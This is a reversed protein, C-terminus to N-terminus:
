YDLACLLAVGRKIWHKEPKESRLNISLVYNTSHGTTSLTGARKSTRYVPASYSYIDANKAAALQQNKKIEVPKLWIVPMTAYLQRKYSEALVAGQSDWRAGQIFLGYIYVGDAPPQINHVSAENPNINPLVEFEFAIEDIAIQYNRAYNQLTGTLFSQTFFFGSLWYVTPSGYNLWETFMRLRKKLDNVWAGLPKTSPYSVASWINPVVNDYMNYSMAELEASMVVEGKIAKQLESLSTRIVTLLRNFRVLEQILVTNMSETYNVPYKKAAALLDFNAPLEKEIESALNAIQENMGSSVQGGARPQLALLTELMSNAEKIATTIAANNHLGFIQASDTAPLDRIYARYDSLDAGAAPPHYVGSEDFKYQDTLINPSMYDELMANILRRDLADTVKGGYNLEGILYKLAEFPIDSNQYYDIFQKLQIKSILLDSETFDYQKNWGVAGFRKRENVIAHFFSLGFFLKKFEQPKASSELYSSEVARYTQNLNAKLGKPPENTIKVGNQLISVPFHPTPMSTLWLRFDSNTTVPNIEEVIKQLTPMWSVQLHCNQLLVWTGKDIADRISSEALPGQGQGLSISVLKDATNFGKDAALKHVDRVPDVGPSLVFILPSTPDSDKFAAELDYAPPNIFDRGLVSAILRQMAVALKDLRLCRLVLLKQFLTLKENWVGPLNRAFPESSEYYARWRNQNTEIHKSLGHFAKLESLNVIQEWQLDTLWHSTALSDLNEGDEGENSDDKKKEEEEEEENLDLDPPPNMVTPNKVALEEKISASGGTLLFRLEASDLQNKGQLVRGALMFSFLLKDKEFLSRCVNNYLSKIFQKDINATRQHVDLSKDADRIARLFLSIFWQLSYQYMPDINCLDQVCFFLNSTSKATSLYSQRTQNITEEMKAQASVRKEILKAASKSKQLTQILDEDDLIMGKSENLKELIKDEIIQLQRQNEASKVILEGRELELEPEESSVVINLMQDELGESTIMFNILTVKTSTEPPYHPNSLKTTIYLRFDESYNLVENGLRIMTRAGSKFTQKLLLPELVPDITEGVNEILVPLGVQVATSLIRIFQDDTQRLVKLATKEDELKRIFKNAQEQPDIILGWRLAKTLIIANDISFSDKPLSQIGWQRIQVPDGLVKHLAFDKDCPIRKLQLLKVWERICQERFSSTFVGLYAIVGSSVLINGVVNVFDAKLQVERDAWRSKENSLGGLLQEARTLRATCEAVQSELSQKKQNCLEFQENLDDLLKQVEALQQKKASLQNSAELLSKEAVKLAERKPQVASNVRDYVEMALIWKCFGEAAKSAQAVRSPAFDPNKCYPRVKSIIEKPINDKDYNLLRQFLKSDNLLKVKAAAFYDDVKSGVTGVKKPPVGMMICLAELTLVVGQTPVKMTRLEDLASKSLVKLANQAQKLAPMAEELVSNCEDAIKKAVEAQQNCEKEEAAVVKRTQAVQQSRDAITQILEATEKSSQILQPRLAELQIQMAKVNEETDALKSLGTSYRHQASRINERNTEFLKRFLKILELYSTPTVYNYRRLSHLYDKSLQIVREQMDVCVDIVGQKIAPELNIENLFRTAVQKLADTPWPHFWDITTCNVLSPFQRLRSRFLSGVPSLCLVIHLNARCRDVFYSFVSANSDAKGHKRAEPLVAEVIPLYDEPPFLNPVEGSNLLSSLDEMFAENKIQSDSILFVIPKAYVGAARVVERLDDRWENLSYQKTIEIQFVEYDAIFAALKTLSQRGSGGVGVLLANGFPQRLIRSIRAIHSIADDFLVLNMQQKEVTNYDNLYGEVVSTLASNDKIEAYKKIVAKSNGFDCFLLQDQPITASEFVAEIPQEFTASIQKELLQNFWKQDAEDILRDSFVRTTEHAWLRILDAPEKIFEADVSMIGQFVKSVDRLNFTYHSKAPTPLLDKIITSYASVTANVLPASLTRIKASFPEIWWRVITNFIRKLSTEDLSNFCIANFHRLYRNTVPNRGGGMPAMATVFQVDVISRFSNTKRDYWGNYDMWQRLLEIPPQAGYTDRAPLNLDDIFVVCRKNPPPGLVGARRRELKNDIIDQTQNASTRASFAFMLPLYVNRDLGSLLKSQAAVTKGTGTPGTLLVHHHNTILLDMIYNTRITDLTPVIIEHFQAKEPIKFTEGINLWNQWTHLKRSYCYEFVSASEERIEAEPYSLQVRRHSHEKPLVLNLDNARGNVLDRFFESFKNRSTSDANSGISWVLAFLFMSELWQQRYEIEDASDLDLLSASYSVPASALDVKAEKNEEAAVASPNMTATIQQQHSQLRLLAFKLEQLLTDLLKCLSSILTIESQPLLQTCNKQTFELSPPILWHFLNKLETLHPALIPHLQNLYSEVIPQWGLQSPEMYIMGCRSVTAPSAQSLDEVEFIMNMNNILKIQEGSALCLKRNDDLVTNMNEIWVADVPGDFVVWQWHNSAPNSVAERMVVSLIGDRWEKNTEDEKGYLQDLTISKPNIFYTNVTNFNQQGALTTIAAALTKLCTSKASFTQGVLMLGHRVLITDYLEICKNVFNPVAQLNTAAIRSHLASVLLERENARMEVSPFLDKVIGNFLPIDASVFRPLNCDCIARVILWDESESPNATKLHGAATLCSKVNRMGYDYHFQSSLQESALRLCTVLKRALDRARSYGYSYLVIEAIMAYDPVMMAVSRFLAKLNDPLEARGAYGPNMTIFISCTSILPINVDEFFFTHKGEIIARQIHSVQQAIVSLVELEIRNFEDFCSWAGSAALGKLFKAMSRYNIADSCNFVLCQIAVAKSLDKVTETKGTGAPGEPAGGLHLNVASMLTRYCRDTLPTIVLRTTNGLYEYGYNMSTNIMKVRLQGYPQPSLGAPKMNPNSNSALDVNQEQTWYYRMQALWDFEMESSVEQEVLKAVVDRAHVDVVTLAGLTLRQLPSLEGRVLDVLKDLQKNLVALYDILATRNSGNAKAQLADSVQKTWYFQSIALVIQGPQKLIWQERTLNEYDVLAKTSYYRLSERMSKEVEKLWIEVNGRKTGENPDVYDIFPITEGEISKMATIISNSTFNLEHIADFCKSLHPQVATANKTQSLISLLEDNSLFYFRPFALRKTELYENLHKGILDLMKNSEQFTKLLNETESVFDLINGIKKAQEMTKRWHLDVVGFRRGEIPMQRLIDESSFIPEFYLWTKQCNLWEEMISSILQLRSEWKKTRNEFFKIYPSGRMAQTKMIQDDLLTLIEEAGKLIYTKTSKYAELEFNVTKWEKVMKDLQLELQFEKSASSCIEEIAAKHGAVDLALIQSLTLDSDPTLFQKGPCLLASLKEWHRPRLGPNRLWTIVPINAKFDQIKMKMETAVRAPKIYDEALLEKELKYMLKHWSNVDKSISAAELDNFPGNMWVSYSGNFQSTTAWLEYFPRFKKRLENLEVYESPLDGFLLDRSNFSAVQQEAKELKEQLAEVKSAYQEMEAASGLGFSAFSAVEKNFLELDTAFSSQEVLLQQQFRGTDLEIQCKCEELAEFLYQPYRTVTWSLNFDARSISFRFQMLVRLKAQMEAIDQKLRAIEVAEVQRAYQKLAALENVNQPKMRINALHENYLATLYENETRVWSALGELLSHAIEKARNSLQEKLLQCEIKILQFTVESPSTANIADIANIYRQIEGETDALSHVSRPKVLAPKKKELEGSKAENNTASIAPKDLGPNGWPSSNISSNTGVTAANNEQGHAPENSSEGAPQFWAQVHKQVDIGLLEGFKQYLTALAIPQKINERIISKLEKQAATAQEFLVPASKDTCLPIDGMALLPVVDNDIQAVNQLKSPINILNLLTVKISDLAPLFVVERGQCSMKFVFLPRIGLSKHPAFSLSPGSLHGELMARADSETYPSKNENASLTPRIKSHQPFKDYFAKLPNNYRRMFNIYETISDSTLSTLQNRLIYTVMKLFRRLESNHFEEVNNVFLKYVSNLNDRILNIILARWENQIKERVNEFHNECFDVYDYLPVASSPANNVPLFRNSKVSDWAKFLTLLVQTAEPHHTFHSSEVSKMARQMALKHPPTEIVALYPIEKIEPLPPLNLSAMRAAEVADKRKFDIIAQKMARAYEDRVEILLKEVTKQRNMVLSEASLMLRGIIGHLSSQQIPTFLSDSQSNVFAQYRRWSLAEERLKRCEELRANFKNKDEDDFLISLRGVQKLLSPQDFQISYLNVDESYDIVRCEKWIWERNFYFLSKAPLGHSGYQRRGYYLWEPGSRDGEGSDFLELPLKELESRYIKYLEEPNPPPISYGSDANTNNSSSAVISQATLKLSKTKAAANNISQTLSPTFDIAEEKFEKNEQSDAPEAAQESQQTNNNSLIEGNEQWSQPQQNEEEALGNEQRFKHQKRQTERDQAQMAEYESEVRESIFQKKLERRLSRPSLNASNPLARSPAPLKPLKVALPADSKHLLRTLNARTSEPTVRRKQFSAVSLSRWDSPPQPHLSSLKEENGTSSM